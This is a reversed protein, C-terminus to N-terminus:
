LPSQAVLQRTAPTVSGRMAVAAGLGVRWSAAPLRGMVVLTLGGLLRRALLLSVPLQGAHKALAACNGPYYDGPRGPKYDHFVVLTPDYAVRLGIKLARLTLDLDESSGYRAGVGLREDFEGVATLASQRWFMTVSSVSKAAVGPTVKRAVDPFRRTDLSEVSPGYRGCVVDADRLTARAHAIAAPPYSCDDDPFGVLDADTYLGRSRAASLATNRSVALSAGAPVPVCVVSVGAPVPVPCASGGRVALLLVVDAPQQTLSALLRGLEAAGRGNVDAAVSAILLASM